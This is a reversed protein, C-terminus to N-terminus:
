LKVAPGVPKRFHSQQLASPCDATINAAPTSANPLVKTQFQITTMNTIWTPTRFEPIGRLQRKGGTGLPDGPLQRRRDMEQMNCNYDWCKKTM